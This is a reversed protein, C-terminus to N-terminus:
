RQPLPRWGRWRQTLGPRLHVSLGHAWSFARAPLPSRPSVVLSASDRTEPGTSVSFSALIGSVQSPCVPPPSQCYVTAMSSIAGPDLVATGAIPVSVSPVTPGLQLPQPVLSTRDPCFAGALGQQRPEMQTLVPSLPPQQDPPHGPSLVGPLAWRLHLSGCVSAPELDMHHRPHPSLSSHVGPLLLPVPPDDPKAPNARRRKSQFFRSGTAPTPACKSRSEIPVIQPPGLVQLCCLPGEAVRGAAGLKRPRGRRGSGCCAPRPESVLPSAM